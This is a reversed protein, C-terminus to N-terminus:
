TRTITDVDGLTTVTQSLGPGATITGAVRDSVLLNAPDLGARRWLDLLQTALNPPLIALIDALQDDISGSAAAGSPALLMADRIQQQTPAIAGSTSIAIAQVPQEYLVRVVFAALTNVFPDGGGDVLLIGGTVALTHHAEQPRIRWGNTLYIYAPIYKTPAEIPNGGVSLLPFTYKNATADDIWHEKADSYLDVRVDFDTVGPKAIFLKATTDVTFKAMVM